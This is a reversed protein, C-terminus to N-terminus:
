DDGGIDAKKIELTVRQRDKEVAQRIKVLEQYSDMREESQRQTELQMQKNQDVREGSRRKVVDDPDERMLPHGLKDLEPNLRKFDALRQKAKEFEREGQQAKASLYKEQTEVDWAIMEMPDREGREGAPRVKKRLENAGQVLEKPLGEKMKDQFERYRSYADGSRYLAQNVQGITGHVDLFRKRLNALIKDYEESTVQLAEFQEDLRAVAENFKEVPTMCERLETKVESALKLIREIADKEKVLGQLEAIDKPTLGSGSTEKAKKVSADYDADMKDVAKQYADKLANVEKAGKGFINMKLGQDLEELNKDYDEKLKSIQKAYRESPVSLKLAELARQDSSMDGHGTMTLLENQTKIRATMEEIQLRLKPNLSVNILEDKFKKSLEVAKEIQKSILEIEKKTLEAPANETGFAGGYNINLKGTDADRTFTKEEKELQRGLADRQDQLERIRKEADKIVPGLFDRKEQTTAKAELEKLTKKFGEDMAAIQKSNLNTARDLEGNFDAWKQTAGSLYKGLQYFGIGVAAISVSWIAMSTMTRGMSTAFDEVSKKTDKVQSSVEGYSAVAKDLQAAEKEFPNEKGLVKLSTTLQDSAKAVGKLSSAQADAAAALGGGTRGKNFADEAEKANKISSAIAEDLSKSNGTLNVVLNHLETENGAPM